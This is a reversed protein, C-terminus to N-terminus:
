KITYTYIVKQSEGKSILFKWSVNGDDKSVLGKSLEVADVIIESNQSIPLQDELGIKVATKRNNKIVMEYSYVMKRNNGMIRENNFYKIKNLTVIVKSNRGFFLDLTDNVSKPNVYSQGVFKGAFYVNAPEEILDLDEWGKNRALLFADKEVKHIPYHKFTTNLSYSAVEVIYPKADSPISYPKKIEFEASLESVHVEECVVKSQEEKKGKSKYIGFYLIM